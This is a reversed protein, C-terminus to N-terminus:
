AGSDTGPRALTFLRPNRAYRAAERPGTWKCFVVHGGALRVMHDINHVFGLDESFTYSRMLQAMGPAPLRPDGAKSERLFRESLEPVATTDDLLVKMAEVRDSIVIPVRFVKGMGRRGLLAAVQYGGVTQGIEIGM